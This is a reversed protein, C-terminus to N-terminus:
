IVRIRIKKFEETIEVDKPYNYFVGEFFTKVFKSSESVTLILTYSNETDVNLQYWNTKEIYKLIKRINKIGRDSFERYHEVGIDHVKKWFEESGEGIEEFISKCHAIDIIMHEMKALYEIYADINELSTKEQLKEYLKLNQLAKRIIDAKSSGCHKQLCNEIIKICENDLSISLREM